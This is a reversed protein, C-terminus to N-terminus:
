IGASHGNGEGASEVPYDPFGVNPNALTFDRSTYNPATIPAPVTSTCAALGLLVVMMTIRKM